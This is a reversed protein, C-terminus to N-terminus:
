VGYLQVDDTPKHIDGSQAQPHLHLRMIKTLYGHEMVGFSIQKILKDVSINFGENLTKNEM